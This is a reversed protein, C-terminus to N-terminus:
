TGVHKTDNLVAPGYGDRTSVRRLPSAILCPTCCSSVAQGQGSDWCALYNLVVDPQGTMLHKEIEKLDCIGHKEENCDRRICLERGM